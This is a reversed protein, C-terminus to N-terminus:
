RENLTLKPFLHLANQTTIAAVDDFPVGFIEGYTEAVRRVYAPENTKGRYPIPAMFPSDTEIMLAELPLQSVTDRIERAFTVLGTFSILLGKELCQWAFDVKGTYCHCQGNFYDVKNLIHMIPADAQRNHIILPLNMSKALEVQGQFARTQMAEPAYERYFDMGIEGIGVCKEHRCLTELIKLYDSTFTGADEPHIGVAAYIMDYRDALDLAKESSPIDVGPVIVAIIGQQRARELYPEPHDAFPSFNLHAHTDILDAPM